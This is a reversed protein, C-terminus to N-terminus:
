AMAGNRWTMKLAWFMDAIALAWKEVVTVQNPQARGMHSSSDITTM